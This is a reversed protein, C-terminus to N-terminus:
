KAGFKHEVNQAPAPPKGVGRIGYKRIRWNMRLSVDKRVTVHSSAVNLGAKLAKTEARWIRLRIKAVVISGTWNGREGQGTGPQSLNTVRGARIPISTECM